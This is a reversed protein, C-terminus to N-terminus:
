ARLASCARVTSDRRLSVPSLAGSKGSHSCGLGMRRYPATKKNLRGPHNDGFVPDRRAKRLSLGPRM